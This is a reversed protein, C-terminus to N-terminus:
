AEEQGLLTLIVEETMRLIAAARGYLLDTLQLAKKINSQRVQLEMQFLNEQIHRGTSSPDQLGTKIHALIALFGQLSLTLAQSCILKIRCTTATLSNFITKSHEHCIKLPRHLFMIMSSCRAILPLTWTSGSINNFTNHRTEKSSLLM